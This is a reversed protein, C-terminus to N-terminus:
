REQANQRAVAEMGLLRECASRASSTLLLALGIAFVGMM